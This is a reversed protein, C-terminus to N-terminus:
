RKAERAAARLDAAQRKLLLRLDPDSFGIKAGADRLLKYEPRSVRGDALATAAMTIPDRLFLHSAFWLTSADAAEAARAQAAIEGLPARGDFAVATATSARRRASRM